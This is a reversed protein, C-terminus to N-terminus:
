INRDVPSTDDNLGDFLSVAMVSYIIILTIM